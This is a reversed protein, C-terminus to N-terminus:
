DQQLPLNKLVICAGLSWVTDLMLRKFQTANSDIGDIVFTCKVPVEQPLTLNLYSGTGIPKVAEGGVSGTSIKYRNGEDDFALSNNSYIRVEVDKSSENTIILDLTVRKEVVLCRSVQTSIEPNPSVVKVQAAAVTWVFLAVICLFFKKM